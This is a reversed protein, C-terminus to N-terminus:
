SDGGVTIAVATSEFGNVQVKVKKVADATPKAGVVVKGSPYLTTDTPAAGEWKWVGDTKEVGGITYKLQGTTNQLIKQDVVVVPAQSMEPFADQLATEFESVKTSIVWFRHTTLSHAKEGVCAGGNKVDVEMHLEYLNYTAGPVPNEEQNVGMFRLNEMTPLHNNKLLQWANGFGETGVTVVRFGTGISKWTGEYPLTGLSGERPIFEEIDATIRQYCSDATITIKDTTDAVISAIKFDNMKSLMKTAAEALQKVIGAKTATASVIEVVIPRQFYTMANAYSAEVDGSLAVNINLRYNKDAAPTGGIKVEVVEKAEQIASVKVIKKITPHRYVGVHDVFLEKEGTASNLVAEVKRDNMIIERTFQFM